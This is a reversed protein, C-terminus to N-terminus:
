IMLDPGFSARQVRRKMRTEIKIQAAPPVFGVELVLLFSPYKSVVWVAFACFLLNSWSRGQILPLESSGHLLNQGLDVQILPLESAYV